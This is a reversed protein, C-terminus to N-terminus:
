LVCTESSKRPSLTNLDRLRDENSPARLPVSTAATATSVPLTMSIIDRLMFKMHQNDFDDSFWSRDSPPFLYSISVAITPWSLTENRTTFRRSALDLSRGPVFVQSRGSVSLVRLPPVRFM